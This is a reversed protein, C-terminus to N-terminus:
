RAAALCHRVHELGNKLLRQAHEDALRYHVHKGARRGRVLRAQKLVKLRQSVTAVADGSLEALDCVCLEGHEQLLTLMRLRGPEGLAQFVAAAEDIDRALPLATDLSM